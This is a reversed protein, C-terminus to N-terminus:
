SLLIYLKQSWLFSKHLMLYRIPNSKRVYYLDSSVNMLRCNDPRNDYITCEGNKLFYCKSMEYSSRWQFISGELSAEFTNARSELEAITNASITGGDRQELLTTLLAAEDSTISVMRHCCFNCGKKCQVKRGQLEGRELDEKLTSDIETHLYIARVEGPPYRFFYGKYVSLLRGIRSNLDESNAKYVVNRLNLSIVANQKKNATRKLNM